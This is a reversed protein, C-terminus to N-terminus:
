VSLQPIMDDRFQRLLVGRSAIGGDWDRLAPPPPPAGLKGKQPPYPDGWTASEMEGKRPILWILWILGHEFNSTSVFM